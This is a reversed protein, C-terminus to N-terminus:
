DGAAVAPEDLARRVASALESLAMPKLLLQRAGLRRVEAPELLRETFGTCLVIPLDPRIQLMEETLEDGPLDPMAVDSLVLDYGSPSDRLAELAERPSTFADVEYGLGTLTRGMLELLTEEDDVLMIRERGGVVTRPPEPVEDDPEEDLLPLYIDFRSGREPESDVTVAGGHAAIIGHVVSLGLGTGREGEKTTFFPEFIRRRVEDDMGIGEDRVWLLQYRGPGLGPFRKAVEREGLHVEDLGIELVGGGGKEMAQMANTSLNILIQHMQVPDASVLGDVKRQVVLDITAPLTARLMQAAEDVLAGLRLPRMAQEAQRSFSLIQRVLDRARGGATSITELHVAAVSGEEVEKKALDAYGLIATLINNFDHAIGGALTGIAEMKQSQALQRQLEAREEEARKRATIDSMISLHLGPLINAVASYDTYITKGEADVLPFEGDLVGDELFRKWLRRGDEENGEPTLDWPYSGVLEDRSRGLLRCTAPNVEIWCAEDDALVIANQAREFIAGLKAQSRELEETAREREEIARRLRRNAEVVARYRWLTMLLITLVLIVAMVFGVRRPTWFPPEEGYWRAYIEEYLPSGVFTEVASDLRGLLETEDRRVAIARRIEALPPGALRIERE